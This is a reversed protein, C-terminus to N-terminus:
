EDQTRPTAPAEPAKDAIDDAAEAPPLPTGERRRIKAELERMQKVLDRLERHNDLRVAMEKHLAMIKRHLDRIAEDKAILEVRKEHLAAALKRQEQRLTELSDDAAAPLALGVALLALGLLRAPTRM